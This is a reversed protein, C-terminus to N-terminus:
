PCHSVHKCSAEPEKGTTELPNNSHGRLMAVLKGLPVSVHSLLAPVMLHKGLSHLIRTIVCPPRAWLSLFAALRWLRRKKWWHVTRSQLNSFGFVGGWGAAFYKTITKGTFFHKLTGLTNSPIFAQRETVRLGRLQWLEPFCSNTFSSFACQLSRQSAAVSHVSRNYNQSRTMPLGKGTACKGIRGEKLGCPPPLHLECTHVAM